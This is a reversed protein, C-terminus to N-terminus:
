GDSTEVTDPVDGCAILEGPKTVLWVEIAYTGQLLRPLGLAVTRGGREGKIGGLDAALSGHNGCDGRILRIRHPGGGAPSGRSIGDVTIRTRRADLPTLIARAGTLQSGNTAELEFSVGPGNDGPVVDDSAAEKGGGCGTVVLLGALGITVVLARLASL